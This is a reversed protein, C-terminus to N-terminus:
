DNNKGFLVAVKQFTGCNKGDMEKESTSISKRYSPTQTSCSKHTGLTKTWLFNAMKYANKHFRDGSELCNLALVSVNDARENKLNIKSWVPADSGSAARHVLLGGKNDGDDDCLKVLNWLVSHSPRDSVRQISRVALGSLDRQKYGIFFGGFNRLCFFQATELAIWPQFRSAGLNHNLKWGWELILSKM